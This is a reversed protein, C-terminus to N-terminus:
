EGKVDRKLSAASDSAKDMVDNINLTVAEIGEFRYKFDFFLGVVLLPITVWFAFVALLVLVLTPMSFVKRGAREAVFSTDVSKKLIGRLWGMARDLVESFRSSKTSREYESQAQSMQESSWDRCSDRPGTQYSATRGTGAKGRRELWVIADLMDENCADLAERAEEFSAGTKQCITEAKEFKDM